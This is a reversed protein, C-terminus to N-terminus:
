AADSKVTPVTVVPVSSARVIREAMSGLALRGLAGRGHTGVIVLDAGTEDAHFTILSSAPGVLVTQKARSAAPFVAVLESLDKEAEKQVATLLRFPESSGVAVLADALMLEDRHEVVHVIELEADWRAAVSLAFRLPEESYKSLDLAVLIRSIM